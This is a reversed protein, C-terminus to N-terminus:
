RKMFGLDKAHAQLKERLVTRARSARSKVTGEPVDLVAAVDRHDMREVDVLLLALRQDPPLQSLADLVQQDSFGDLIATENHIAAADECGANETRAAPAMEEDLPLFNVHRQRRLQDIWSNRLTRMMWAKCNTGEQFSRFKEWAQLYTQQVLDEAQDARGCLSLAARYVADIQPMALTEFQERLDKPV